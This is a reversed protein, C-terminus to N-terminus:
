VGWPRRRLKVITFISIRLFISKAFGIGIASATAIISAINIIIILDKM